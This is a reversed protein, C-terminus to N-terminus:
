GAAMQLGALAMFQDDTFEFVTDLGTVAFINGTNPAVRCFILRRDNDALVKRLKLFKAISSSTVIDIDAFDIVVDCTKNDKVKDIVTQLEEGTHPESALNVLVINESWNQIAM